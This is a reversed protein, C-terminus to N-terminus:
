MLVVVLARFLNRVIKRVKWFFSFFHLVYDWFTANKVDGGRVSMAQKFQEAWTETHVRFADLNAGTMLMLRHTVSNFDSVHVHVVCLSSRM